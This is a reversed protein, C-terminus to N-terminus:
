RFIWFTTTIGLHINELSSFRRSSKVKVSNVLTAKSVIDLQRRLEAQRAREMDIARFLSSTFYARITKARKGIFSIKRWCKDFM